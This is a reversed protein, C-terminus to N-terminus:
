LISKLENNNIFINGIVNQGFCPSQITAVVVGLANPAVIITIVVCDLVLVCDATCAAKKQKKHGRTKLVVRKVTRQKKKSM